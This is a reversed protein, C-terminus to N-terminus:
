VRPETRAEPREAGHTPGLLGYVQAGEVGGRGQDGSVVDEEKPHGPHGHQPDLEHPPLGEVLHEQVAQQAVGVAFLHGFGLAVADIGQFHDVFEAGVGQAEGEGGLGHHPPVHNQLFRGDLSVAVEDVFDPVRGAEQHAVGLAQVRGARDIELAQLQEVAPDEAPRLLHAALM